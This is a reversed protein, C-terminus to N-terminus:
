RKIYIFCHPYSALDHDNKRHVPLGIESLSTFLGNATLNAPERPSSCVSIGKPCDVEPAILSPPMVESIQARRLVESVDTAVRRSADDAAHLIQARSDPSRVGSLRRVLYEKDSDAIGNLPFPRETPEDAPQGFRLRNIYAEKRLSIESAFVVAFAVLGL